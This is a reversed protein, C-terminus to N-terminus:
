RMVAPVAALATTFSSKHMSMLLLLKKMMFLVALRIVAAQKKLRFVSILSKVLDSRSLLDEIFSRPISGKPTKQASSPTSFQAV